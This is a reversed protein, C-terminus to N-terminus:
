EKVRICVSAGPRADIEQCIFDESLVKNVVRKLEEYNGTPRILTNFGSSVFIVEPMKKICDRIETIKADSEFGVQAYNRCVLIFNDDLFAALGLDDNPGLRAYHQVGQFQSKNSNIYNVEPPIQWSPSSAKAFLNTYVSPIRWGTLQLTILIPIVAYSIIVEPFKLHNATAELFILTSSWALLCLVQLHHPWMASIM